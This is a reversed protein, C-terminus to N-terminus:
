YWSFIDLYHIIQLILAIPQLCIGLRVVFKDEFCHIRLIQIRQPICLWFRGGIAAWFTSVTRLLILFLFRLVFWVSLYICLIILLMQPLFCQFFISFWVLIWWLNPLLPLWNFIWAVIFGLLGFINCDPILHKQTHLKTALHTGFWIRMLNSTERFVEPELWILNLTRQKEFEIYWTDLRVDTEHKEINILVVLWTIHHRACTIENGFDSIMHLSIYIVYIITIITLGSYWHYIPNREQYPFSTIAGLFEIAVSHLSVSRMLKFNSWLWCWDLHM